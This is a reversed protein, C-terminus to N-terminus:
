GRSLAGELAEEIILEATLKVLESREGRGEKGSMLAEIRKRTNQSAPVRKNM